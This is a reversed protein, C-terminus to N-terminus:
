KLKATCSEWVGRPSTVNELDQQPGLEDIHKALRTLLAPHLSSLDDSSHEGGWSRFDFGVFHWAKKEVCKELDKEQTCSPCGGFCSRLWKRRSELNEQSFQLELTGNVDDEVFYEATGLTQCPPIEIQINAIGRHNKKLWRNLSTKVKEALRKKEDSSLIPYPDQTKRKSM